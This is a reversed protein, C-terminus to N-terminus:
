KAASVKWLKITMDTSGSALIKGDPSFALCCVSATHGELTARVKRKEMDWLNIQESGTALTKGDPSFALCPTGSTTAELTAQEKGTKVEWLKISKDSDRSALIMGDPSFALARLRGGDVRGKLTDRVKGSDVDWLYLTGDLSGSALTKGDPSFAVSLAPEYRGLLSLPPKAKGTEVDWLLVVGPLEGSGGAAVTKSDPSFALAPMGNLGPAGGTVSGELTARKKGTKADWLKIGGWKTKPGSKEASALTTGDPSFVVAYVLGHGTPSTLETNAILEKGTKVNWLKISKDSSGSVLKTGDPSFAVSWVANSHGDLNAHTKPQAVAAMPLSTILMALLVIVFRNM